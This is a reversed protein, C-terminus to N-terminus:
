QGEPELYRLLEKENAQGLLKLDTLREWEYVPIDSGDQVCRAFEDAMRCTKRFIDSMMVLSRFAAVDKKSFRTYDDLTVHFPADNTSPITFLLGVGEICLRDLMRLKRYRRYVRDYTIKDGESIDFAKYLAKHELRGNFEHKDAVERCVLIGLITDITNSLHSTAGLPSLVKELNSGMRWRACIQKMTTNSGWIKIAECTRMLSQRSWLALVHRLLHSSRIEMPLNTFEEFPSIYRMWQDTSANADPQERQVTDRCTKRRKPTQQYGTEGESTRRSTKRQQTPKTPATTPSVLMDRTIPKWGFCKCENLKPPEWNTPVYNIAEALNTGLNFGYHITGPLVLVAVGPAQLFCTYRISKKDLYEPHVFLRAHRLYQHCSARKPVALRDHSLADLLKSRESAPVAVWLKPSGLHNINLAPIDFDESHMTFVTGFGNSCIGEPITIGRTMPASKLLVNGHLPYVASREPLCCSGRSGPEGLDIDTAYEPLSATRGPGFRLWWEEFARCPDQDGASVPDVEWTASDDHVDYIVEAATSTRWRLRQQYSRSIRPRTNEPYDGLAPPPIKILAFGDSQYSSRMHEYLSGFNQWQAIDPTAVPPAQQLYKWVGTDGAAEAALPEATDSDGINSGGVTPRSLSSSPASNLPVLNARQPDTTRDNDPETGRVEPTRTVNPHGATNQSPKSSVETTPTPKGSTDSELESDSRTGSRENTAAREKPEGDTLSPSQLAALPPNRFSGFSKLSDIEERLEAMSRRLAALLDHDGKANRRHISDRGGKGVKRRPIHASIEDIFEYIISFKAEITDMRRQFETGNTTENSSM